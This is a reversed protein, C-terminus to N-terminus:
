QKIFKYSKNDITVFYIGDTLKSIDLNHINDGIINKVTNTLVIEGVINFILMTSMNAKSQYTVNLNNTAPNPYLSVFSNVNEKNEVIVTPQPLAHLIILDYAKSLIQGYLTDLPSGSGGNTIVTLAVISTDSNIWAAVISTQSPIKKSIFNYHTGDIKIIDILIIQQGNIDTTDPMSYCYYVATNNLVALYNENTITTTTSQGFQKATFAPTYTKYLFVSDIFISDNKVYIHHNQLYVNHSNSNTFNGNTVFGYASTNSYNQLIVSQANNNDANYAYYTTDDIKQYHQYQSVNQINNINVSLSDGNSNFKMITTDGRDGVSWILTDNYEFFSQMTGNMSTLHYSKVNTSDVHFTGTGYNQASVTNINFVM